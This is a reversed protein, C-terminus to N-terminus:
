YFVLWLPEMNRPVVMQCKCSLNNHWMYLFGYFDLRTINEYHICKM